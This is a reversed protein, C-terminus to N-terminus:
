EKEKAAIEEDDDLVEYDTSEEVSEYEPVVVDRVSIRGTIVDSILRTRYEISYIIQNEIADILQDFKGLRLELFDVIAVQETYNPFSIQIESLEEQNIKPM